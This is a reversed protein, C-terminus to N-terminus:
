VYIKKGIRMKGQILIYPNRTPGIIGAIKGIKKKNLNFVTSKPKPMDKNRVIGKGSASIASIEGLLKM